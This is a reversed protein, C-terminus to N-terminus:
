HQAAREEPEQVGHRQEIRQQLCPPHLQLSRGGHREPRPHETEIPMLLPVTGSSAFRNELQITLGLALKCDPPGYRHPFRLQMARRLSKLSFDAVEVMVLVQQSGLEVLQAFVGRM